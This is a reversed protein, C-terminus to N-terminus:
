GAKTDYIRSHDCNLSLPDYSDRAHRVLLKSFNPPARLSTHDLTALDYDIKSCSELILFVLFTLTLQLNIQSIKINLHLCFLAM